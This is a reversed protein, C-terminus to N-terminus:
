RFNRTAPTVNVVHNISEPSPIAFAFKNEAVQQADTNVLRGAAIVGFM